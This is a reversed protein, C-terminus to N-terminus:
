YYFNGYPSTASRPMQPVNVYHPDNNMQMGTSGGSQSRGVMQPM